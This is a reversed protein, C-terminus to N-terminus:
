NRNQWEDKHDNMYVEQLTAEILSKVANDYVSNNPTWHEMATELIKIYREKRGKFALAECYPGDYIPSLTDSSGNANMHLEQCVHLLGEGTNMLDSAEQPM